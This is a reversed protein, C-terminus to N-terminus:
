ISHNQPYGGEGSSVFIYDQRSQVLGSRTCERRTFRSAQPNRVRWIDTLNFEEVLNLISTSYRSKNEITGGKNDIKPDLYTNLDGGIMINKIVTKRYMNKLITWFDIEQIAHDKTPAYINITKLQM